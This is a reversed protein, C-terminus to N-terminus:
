SFTILPIFLEFALMMMELLDPWVHRRCTHVSTITTNIDSTELDYIFSAQIHIQLIFKPLWSQPKFKFDYALLFIYILNQRSEFLLWESPRRTDQGEAWEWQSSSKRLRVSLSSSRKMTFVKREHLLVEWTKIFFHKVNEVPLGERKRAKDYLLVELRRM